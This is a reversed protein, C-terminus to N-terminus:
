SFSPSDDKIQHDDPDSQIMVMAVFDLMQGILDPCSPKEFLETNCVLGYMCLKCCTSSSRRSAWIIYLEEPEFDWM